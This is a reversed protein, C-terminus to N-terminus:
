SLLLIHLQFYPYALNKKCSVFNLSDDWIWLRLSIHPYRESVCSICKRNMSTVDTHLDHQMKAYPPNPACPCIPNCECGTHESCQNLCVENGPFIVSKVYSLPMPTPRYPKLLRPYVRDAFKRRFLNMVKQGRNPASQYLKNFRIYNMETWAQVVKLAHQIEARKQETVPMGTLEDLERNLEDQAGNLSAYIIRYAKFEYVRDKNTITGQDYLPKLVAQSQNFEAQDGYELAYCAATEYVEVTFTTNIRQVTLDQRIGKLQNCLYHYPDDKSKYQSLVHPLAMQLVHEPRVTAPDPATTLRLYNKELAQSSGECPPIEELDIGAGLMFASKKVKLPAHMRTRPTAQQQLMQNYDAFRGERAKRKADSEMKAFMAMKQSEVENRSKANNNPRNNNKKDQEPSGGRKRVVKKKPEASFSLFDGFAPMKPPPMGAAHPMGGFSPPPLGFINHPPHTPPPPQTGM